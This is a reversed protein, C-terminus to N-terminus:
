SLTCFAPPPLANILYSMIFRTVSGKIYLVTIFNNLLLGGQQCLCRRHRQRRQARVGGGCACTGQLAISYVTPVDPHMLGERSRSLSRGGRGRVTEGGRLGVMAGSAVAVLVVTVFVMLVGGSRQREGREGGAAGFNGAAM